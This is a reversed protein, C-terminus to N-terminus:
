KKYLRIVSKMDDSRITQYPERDSFAFTNCVIIADSKMHKQLRVQLNDLHKSLLFMYIIDYQSLDMDQIDGHHLNINKKNSFYNM